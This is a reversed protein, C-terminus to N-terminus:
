GGITRALRFGLDEFRATPQTKRRVGARCSWAADAWGGGRIVRYPGYVELDYLDWCWEWVGGITDFLGWDNPTKGAVERRQMGSNDAFWAITELPGYHPGTTGARCALQWEAETPLRYGTAGRNWAVVWDDPAPRDHPVWGIAEAVEVVEVTYAPTLGCRRSLANCFEIAERWSVEVVPLSGGPSINLPQDMVENWDEVTVVTASIEFPAVTVTWANGTRGDVIRM